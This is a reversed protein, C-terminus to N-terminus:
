PATDGHGSIDEGTFRWNQRMTTVWQDIAAGDALEPHNEDTWAGASEELAAVQEELALREAIAEAIFDSRQRKSVRDDLRNLLEVPITVTIKKNSEAALTAM